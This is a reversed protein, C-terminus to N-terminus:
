QYVTGEDGVASALLETYFGGGAELEVVTMGPMVGAFALVDVV